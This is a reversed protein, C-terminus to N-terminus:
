TVDHGAIIGGGGCCRTFASSEVRDLRQEGGQGVEADQAGLQAAQEKPELLLPDGRNDGAFAAVPRQGAM